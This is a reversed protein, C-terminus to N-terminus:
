TKHKDHKRKEENSDQPWRGPFLQCRPERKHHKITNKDCERTTDLTLQPTQNYWNRIKADKKSEIGIDSLAPWFYQLISWSSCEAISKVKM